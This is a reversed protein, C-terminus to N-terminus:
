KKKPFAEVLSNNILQRASRDWLEPHDDLYKKVVATLQDQSLPVPPDWWKLSVYEASGLIYGICFSYDGELRLRDDISLGPPFREDGLHKCKDHLEQGKVFVVAKESPQYDQAKIISVIAVATLLTATVILLKLM